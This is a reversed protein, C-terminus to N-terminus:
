RPFSSVSSCMGVENRENQVQVSALFPDFLDDTIMGYDNGPRVVDCSFKGVCEYVGTRSWGYIDVITHSEM